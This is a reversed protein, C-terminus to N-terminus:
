FNCEYFKGEKYKEVEIEFLPDSIYDTIFDKIHEPPNTDPFLLEYWERTSQMLNLKYNDLDLIVAIDESYAYVWTIGCNYYAGIM